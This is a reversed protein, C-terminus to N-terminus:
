PSGAYAGPLIEIHDDLKLLKNFLSDYLDNAGEELSSALETRGVDGVMLTHGTMVFWPEHGRTKDTVLLSIHEPTHGPTHMAEIVVNGLVIQEGDTIPTFDYKAPTDKFLILKAGTVEALKRAGSYHDAHVHTDFVHTINMGVKRAGEVYFDIDDLPDM